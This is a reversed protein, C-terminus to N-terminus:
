QIITVPKTSTILFLTSCWLIWLMNSSWVQALYNLSSTMRHAKFVLGEHTGIATFLKGEINLFLLKELRSTISVLGFTAGFATLCSLLCTGSVTAIPIPGIALHERRYAGLTALFGFHRKLWAFVPWNVAAVAEAFYFRASLSSEVSLIYPGPYVRGM